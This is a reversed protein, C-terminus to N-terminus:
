VDPIPATGDIIFDAAGRAGTLQHRAREDREFTEWLNIVDDYSHQDREVGRALRADWPAEVFVTLSALTRARPAAVGVGEIILFPRQPVAIVYTRKDELWDWMRFDGDGGAALPELIQGLLVEDLTALGGWGEYLDDGHVIQVPADSTLPADPMYTGAGASASGGLAVALRNALTSKGAGAQGDILILRTRGCRPEGARAADLLQAFSPNPM